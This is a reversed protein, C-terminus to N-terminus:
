RTAQSKLLQKIQSETLRKTGDESFFEVKSQHISTSEQEGMAKLYFYDGRKLVIRGRLYEHTPGYRNAIAYQGQYWFLRSPKVPAQDLPVLQIQTPHLLM